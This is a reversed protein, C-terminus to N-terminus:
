SPDKAVVEWYTLGNKSKPQLGPREAASKGESMLM